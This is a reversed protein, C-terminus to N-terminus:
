LTGGWRCAITGRVTCNQEPNESPLTIYCQEYHGILFLFTVSVQTGALHSKRNIGILVRLHRFRGAEEEEEDDNGDKRVLSELSEGKKKQRVPLAKERSARILSSFSACLRWWPEAFVGSVCRVASLPMFFSLAAPRPGRFPFGVEDPPHFKIFLGKRLPSVKFWFFYIFLLAFSIFVFIRSKFDSTTWLQSRMSNIQCNITMVWWSEPKTKHQQPTKSTSGRGDVTKLFLNLNQEIKSTISVYSTLKSMAIVLGTQKVVHSISM